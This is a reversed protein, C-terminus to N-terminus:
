YYRCSWHQAELFEAVRSSGEHLAGMRKKAHMLVMFRPARGEPRLRRQRDLSSAMQGLAHFNRRQQPRFAASRLEPEHFARKRNKARMPVMFRLDDNAENGVPQAYLEHFSEMRKKAQM